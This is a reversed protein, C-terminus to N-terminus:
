GEVTVTISEVANVSCNIAYQGPEPFRQTYTQGAGVLFPGARHDVADNNVITIAAADGKKFVFVTPLVIASDIGPTTINEYAGAPITFVEGDGSGSGSGGTMTMVAAVIILLGFLGAVIYKTKANAGGRSRGAQQASIEGVLPTSPESM